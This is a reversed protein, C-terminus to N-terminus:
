PRRSVSDVVGSGPVPRAAAPLSRLIAEGFGDAPAASHFPRHAPRRGHTERAAVRGPQRGIAHRSQGAGGAFLQPAPGRRLVSEAGRDAYPLNIGDPLRIDLTKMM